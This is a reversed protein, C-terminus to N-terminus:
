GARLLAARWEPNARLDRIECRVRELNDATLEFVPASALRAHESPSLIALAHHVTSEGVRVRLKDLPLGILKAMLLVFSEGVARATVDGALSVSCQHLLGSEEPSVTYVAALGASTLLCRPDSRSEIQDSDTVIPRDLGAQKLSVVAGALELYHRDSFLRGYMRARSWVGFVLIAVLFVAVAAVLVWGLM